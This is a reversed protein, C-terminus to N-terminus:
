SALLHTVPFNVCKESTIEGCGTVYEFDKTKHIKGSSVNILFHLGDAEDDDLVEDEEDSEDSSGCEPESADIVSAEPPDGVM